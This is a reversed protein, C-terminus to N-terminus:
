TGRCQGGKWVAWDVNLLSLSNMVGEYGQLDVWESTMPPVSWLEGANTGRRVRIILVAAAQHVYIFSGKICKTDDQAKGQSLFRALYTIPTGAPPTSVRGAPTASSSCAPPWYVTCPRVAEGPSARLVGPGRRGEM